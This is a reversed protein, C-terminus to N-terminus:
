VSDFSGIIELVFLKRFIFLLIVPIFSIATSIVENKAIYWKAFFYTLLNLSCGLYILLIGTLSISFIIHLLWGTLGVLLIIAKGLYVIYCLGWFVYFWLNQFFSFNPRNLFSIRIGVIEGFLFFTAAAWLIGTIFIDM